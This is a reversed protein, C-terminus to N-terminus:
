SAVWKDSYSVEHGQSRLQEALDDADAFPGFALRGGLVCLYRKGVEPDLGSFFPFDEPYESKRQEGLIEERDQATLPEWLYHYVRFGSGREHVEHIIVCVAQQDITFEAFKGVKHTTGSPQGKRRPTHQNSTISLVMVPM